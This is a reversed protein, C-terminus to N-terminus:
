FPSNSFDLVNDTLRYKIRRYENYVKGFIRECQEKEKPFFEALTNLEKQLEINFPCGKCGTRKFNYPAYYLPCLNVQYREVFKNVFDDSCVLLPSFKKLNSRQFYLCNSVNKRQGGEASRIGIIAIPKKNAKSWENAPRKKLISCCFDSVKFKNFGNSQYALIKPCNHMTRQNPLITFYSVVSKATSGQQLLHLKHAHEKSKFPYGDNELMERINVGSKVEVIRIDKKQRERVYKVVENYEIGTNIFVRPIANMPLALDILDSLVASDKGGSFSVYGNKRLDYETDIQRIKQIRDSLEFDFDFM